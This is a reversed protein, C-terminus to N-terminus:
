TFKGLGFSIMARHKTRENNQVKDDLLKRHKEAYTRRPSGNTSSVRPTDISVKRRTATVSNFVSKLSNHSFTM